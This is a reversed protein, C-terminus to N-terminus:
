ECETDSKKAQKYIGYVFALQQPDDRKNEVEIRIYLGKTSHFGMNGQETVPEENLSYTQYDGGALVKGESTVGERM